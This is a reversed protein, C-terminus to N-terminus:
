HEFFEEEEITVEFGKAFPQSLLNQTALCANIGKKILDVSVDGLPATAIAPYGALVVGSVLCANAINKLQKDANGITEPGFMRAVIRHRKLDIKPHVCVRVTDWRCKLKRCKFFDMSRYKGCYGKTEPGDWSAMTHSALLPGRAAEAIQPQVAFTACAALMLMFKKLDLM